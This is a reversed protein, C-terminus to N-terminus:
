RPEKWHVKDMSEMLGWIGEPMGGLRADYATHNPLVNIPFVPVDEVILTQFEDYLKKREALDTTVAAKNLLEDVRPNSYQQTNSWVVGKRINTSLYTRHVGIVPDGWNFVGDMTLDFDFNGIRQAWTPFDPSARVEVAIGVKPLQSRLYEAINQQQEGNGPMYDVTLKFRTGDAGRQHGAEDLLANARDLDLKYTPIDANFYPSSEVIPGRQLKSVGRQLAKVIFERDIAYAIAQRVKVDDLPKKATNFALWNLSGLGEYGRDTVVLADNAQLRRIQQSETLVPFIDAEGAEMTLVAASTDNIIRFVIGDLYPRGEIFFDEYRELTIQRGPTFDVLKFPGSGVPAMNAPHTKIDQGDGYVHKPIIPLMVSSMSLLLAPHPQKLRIVATLPDPTEVSSVAAFMATFPHNDRVTEVSFKVDESTIPKGDHFTAGGVLHVTVSLGDPAVDWSKALYPQPQWNEDYRLLSAFIQAGPYGTATGSQLAPNLHRPTQITAIVVTGGPTIEEVHAPLPMAAVAAGFVTGLLIRRTLKM